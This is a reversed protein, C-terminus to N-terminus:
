VFLFFYNMFSFGTLSSETYKEENKKETVNALKITSTTWKVYKTSIWPTDIVKKSSKISNSTTTESSELRRLYLEISDVELEAM